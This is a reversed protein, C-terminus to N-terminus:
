WACGKGHVAYTKGNMVTYNFNESQALTNIMENITIGRYFTGTFRCSLMDGSGVEFIVHYKDQLLKFISELTAEQFSLSRDLVIKSTIPNGSASWKNVNFIDMSAMIAVISLLTVVAAIKYLRANKRAQKLAKIRSKIKRLGSYFEEDDAIIRETVNSANDYLLKIDEFEEAHAPDSGIWTQLEAKEAETAKGSLVKYILTVYEM